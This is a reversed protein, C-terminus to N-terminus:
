IVKFYYIPYGGNVRYREIWTDLTYNEQFKGTSSSNSMIKLDKGFIGVHGNKIPTNPFNSFGTPSIIINGPEPDTLRVFKDQRDVMAAFIKTTSIGPTEIYSGFAKKYIENVTEACGFEDPAVDMPSADM